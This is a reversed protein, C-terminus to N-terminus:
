VEKEIILEGNVVKVETDHNVESDKLVQGKTGARAINAINMGMKANWFEQDAGVVRGIEATMEEHDGKEDSAFNAKVVKEDDYLLIGRPFHGTKEMVKLWGDLDKHSTVFYMDEVRAGVKKAKGLESEYTDAYRGGEQRAQGLMFFVVRPDKKLEDLMEVVNKGELGLDKYEGLNKFKKLKIREQMFESIESDKIKGQDIMAQMFVAAPPLYNEDFKQQHLDEDLKIHGDETIEYHKRLEDAPLGGRESFKRLQSRYFGFEDPKDGNDLNMMYRILGNEVTAREGLSFEPYGWVEYQKKAEFLNKSDVESSVQLLEYPAPRSPIVLKDEGLVLEPAAVFGAIRGQTGPMADIGNASWSIGEQGSNRRIMVKKLEKEIEEESKGEAVLEERRAAKKREYIEEANLIEGSELIDKIGEVTASHFLYVGNKFDAKLAGAEATTMDVIRERRLSEISKATDPAFEVDKLSDWPSSAVDAVQKNAGPDVEM